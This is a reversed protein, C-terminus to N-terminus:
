TKAPETSEVLTAIVEQLAAPRFGANVFRIRASSEVSDPWPEALIGITGIRPAVQEDVRNLIGIAETKGMMQPDVCWLVLDPRCFRSVDAVMAIQLPEDALYVLTVGRGLVYQVESDFPLWDRKQNPNLGKYLGDKFDSRFGVFRNLRASQVIIDPAALVTYRPQTFHFVDTEYPAPIDDWPAYAASKARDGQKLPRADVRLLKEPELLGILSLVAWKEYGGQFLGPWATSIKAAGAEEFGEITTKGKLLDFLPDFLERGLSEAVNALFRKVPSTEASAEWSILGSLKREAQAFHFQLMEARDLMQPSKYELFTKRVANFRDYFETRVDEPISTVSEHIEIEPNNRIFEVLNEYTRSFSDSMACCGNADIRHIQISSSYV